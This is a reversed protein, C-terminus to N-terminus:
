NAIFKTPHKIGIRRLAEDAYPYMRVFRGSTFANWPSLPNKGQRKRDYMIVFALSLGLDYSLCAPRPFNHVSNLMYPGLDESGDANLNHIFRYGGSEEAVTAIWDRLSIGLGTLMDEHSKAQDAVLVLRCILEEEFPSFRKREYDALKLLTDATVRGGKSVIGAYYELRDGLWGM